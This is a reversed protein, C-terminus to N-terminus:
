SKTLTALQATLFELQAQIQEITIQTVPIEPIPLEIFENNPSYYFKDAVIDDNCDIWFLNEHVDFENECVQVVRCGIIENNSYIKEESSILAKMNGSWWLLVTQVLNIPVAVVVAVAVLLLLKM